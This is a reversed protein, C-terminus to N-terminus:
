LAEGRFQSFLVKSFFKIQFTPLGWQQWPKYLVAENSWRTFSSRCIFIRIALAIFLILCKFQRIRTKDPALLFSGSQESHLAARTYRICYYIAMLVYFFRCFNIALLARKKGHRNLNEGSTGGLAAGAGAAIFFSSWKEDSEGWFLVAARLLYRSLTFRLCPLPYKIAPSVSSSSKVTVIHSLSTRPPQELM